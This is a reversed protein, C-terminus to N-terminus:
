FKTEGFFSSVNQLKSIFESNSRARCAARYNTGVSIASRVWQNIVVKNSISYEMQGVLDIISLAFVKTRDELNKSM